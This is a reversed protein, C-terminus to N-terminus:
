RVHGDSVEQMLANATRLWYKLEITPNFDFDEALIAIDKISMPQPSSSGAM